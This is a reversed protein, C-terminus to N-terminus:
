AGIEFKTCLSPAAPLDTEYSENTSSKPEIRANEALFVIEFKREVEPPPCVVKLASGNISTLASHLDVVARKFAVGM